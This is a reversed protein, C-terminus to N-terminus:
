RGDMTFVNPHEFIGEGGCAVLGMQAKEIKANEFLNMFYYLPRFGNIEQNQDVIIVIDRNQKKTSVKWKKGQGEDCMVPNYFSLHFNTNM